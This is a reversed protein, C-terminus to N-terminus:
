SHARSLFLSWDYRQPYLWDLFRCLQPRCRGPCRLLPWGGHLAARLSPGPDAPIFRSVFRIAQLPHTAVGGICVAIVGALSVIGCWSLFLCGGLTSDSGVSDDPLNKELSSAKAGAKSCQGSLWSTSDSSVGIEATLEPHNTSPTTDCSPCRAYHWHAPGASDEHDEASQMALVQLVEVTKQIKLILGKSQAFYGRPGQSRVSSSAPLFPDLLVGQPHVRKLISLFGCPQLTSMHILLVLADRAANQLAASRKNRATHIYTQVYTYM